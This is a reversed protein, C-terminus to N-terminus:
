AVEGDADRLFPRRHRAFLLILAGFALAGLGAPESVSRQIVTPGSILTTGPVDPVLNAAALTGDCIGIQSECAGDPIVSLDSLFLRQNADTLVPSTDILGSRRDSCLICFYRGLDYAGDLVLLDRGADLIQDPMDCSTVSGACLSLVTGTTDVELPQQTETDFLEIGFSGPDNGTMTDLFHFRDTLDATGTIRGGLQLTFPDTSVSGLPVEFTNDYLPVKVLADSELTGTFAPGVDGFSSTLSLASVDIKAGLGIGTENSFQNHLVFTPQVLIDNTVGEPIKVDLSDGLKFVADNTLQYGAGNIDALVPRSFALDVMPEPRFTFDQYIGLNPGGTATALTYGFPGISNSLFAGVLPVLKELNLNLQLASQAGAGALSGDPQLGGTVQLNPVHVTASAEGPVIPITLDALSAVTKGLVKISSPSLEVIPFEASSSITFNKHACLLCVIAKLEADLALGANVKYSADAWAAFNPFTTSFQPASYFTLNQQSELLKYGVQLLSPDPKGFSTVGPSFSSGIRVTSGASVLSSAFPIHLTGTSPYTINLRGGSVAYGFDFAVKGDVHGHLTVGAKVPLDIGLLDAIAQTPSANLDPLNVNFSQSLSIDKRLDVAPGEAWPSLNAGSFSLNKTIDYAGAQRGGLAVLSTFLLVAATCRPGIM